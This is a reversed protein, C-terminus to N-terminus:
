QEKVEVLRGKNFTYIRVDPTVHSYIFTLEGFFERLEGTFWDAAIPGNKDFIRSLPVEAVFFGNEESHADVSINTIFLTDKELQLTVYFGDYNATSVVTGYGKKKKWTDIKKIASKSLRFFHVSKKTGDQLILQDGEQPTAHLSMPFVFFAFLLCNLVALAAAAQLKTLPQRNMPEDKTM